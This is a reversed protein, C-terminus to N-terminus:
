AKKRIDAEATARAEAEEREIKARKIDASARIKVAAEVAARNLANDNKKERTKFEAKERAEDALRSIESKKKDKAKAWSRARKAADAEMKAKAERSKRM